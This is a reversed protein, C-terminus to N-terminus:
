PFRRPRSVPYGPLLLASALGPQLSKRCKIKHSVGRIDGRHLQTLTLLVRNFAGGAVPFFLPFAILWTRGRLGRLRRPLPEPRHLGSAAPAPGPHSRAVRAIHNKVLRHESRGASVESRCRVALLKFGNYRVRSKLGGCQSRQEFKLRIQRHVSGRVLGSIRVILYNTRPPKQRNETGNMLRLLARFRGLERGQVPFSAYLRHRFELFFGYNNFGELPM